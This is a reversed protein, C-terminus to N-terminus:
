GMADDRLQRRVLRLAEKRILGSFPGILSWYLRFYRRAQPGLCLVRTETSLLCGGGPAPEALFNMAAKAYGPQDFELFGRPSVRQVGGTPLWFRGVVGLVLERGPEEDLILFGMKQMNALSPEAKVRGLGRLKFLWSVLPSRSWDLDRALAYVREPPAPMFEQYRARVDYTPLCSNLLM